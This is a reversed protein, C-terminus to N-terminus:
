KKRSQKAVPAPPTVLKYIAENVAGNRWNLWDVPKILEALTRNIDGDYGFIEGRKFQIPRTVEYLGDGLSVISGQRSSAQEPTLDLIGSVINVIGVTIYRQM